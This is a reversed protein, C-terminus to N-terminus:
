DKVYMASTGHRGLTDVFGCNLQAKIGVKRDSQGEGKGGPGKGPQLPRRRAGGGRQCDQRRYPVSLQIWVLDLRTSVRAAVASGTNVFKTQCSGGPTM